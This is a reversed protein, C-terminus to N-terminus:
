FIVEELSVHKINTGNLKVGKNKKVFDRWYVPKPKESGNTPKKAPDDEVYFTDSDYDSIKYTIARIQLSPSTSGM